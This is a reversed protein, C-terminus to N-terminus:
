TRVLREHGRSKLYAIRRHLAHGSLAATSDSATRAAHVLDAIAVAAGRERRWQEFRVHEEEVVRQADLAFRNVDPEDILLEDLHWLTVHPIQAVTPDVNRPVCLDAITLPTSRNAGISAPEVLYAPASTCAVIADVKAVVEALRDLEVTTARLPDAFARAREVSRAVVTPAGGGLATWASAVDAALRGSGVIAVRPAAGEISTRIREVTISAISRRGLNLPTEHRVRKGAHIAARGLAALIPDLAACELALQYADRVQGLIQPEGVVRSDLGASVSLLQRAVEPGHLVRAHRCVISSPLQFWQALCEVAAAAAGAGAHAYLEFRECTSLVMRGSAIASLRQLMVRQKDPSPSLAERVALPASRRTIGLYLLDTSM